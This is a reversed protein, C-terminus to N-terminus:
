HPIGLLPLRRALAAARPHRRHRQAARVRAGAVGAVAPDAALPCARADPTPMPRLRGAARTSILHSSRRDTKLRRRCRAPSHTHRPRPPPPQPPVQHLFLQVSSAHFEVALRASSWRGSRSAFSFARPRASRCGRM